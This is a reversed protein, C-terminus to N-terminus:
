PRGTGRVHQDWYSMWAPGNRSLLGWDVDAVVMEREVKAVWGPVANAPLDARAPLRYVVRATLLQAAEGGVYEIFARAADAHRAGRVLGIADDIVVTGSRPFVYGLPMGKAQSILIDQLDWLSVLGEQRALKEYLLAPSITYTKTQGDLRRLWRMGETTDGTQQLSRALILGWIARMTGSAM